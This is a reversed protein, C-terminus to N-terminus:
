EIGLLALHEDRTIERSPGSVEKWRGDAFLSRWSFDAASPAVVTHYRGNELEALCEIVFHRRNSFAFNGYRDVFKEVYFKTKPADAM